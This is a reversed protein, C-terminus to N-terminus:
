PGASREFDWVIVAPTWWAAAAAEPVLGLLSWPWQETPGVDDATVPATLSSAAPASGM